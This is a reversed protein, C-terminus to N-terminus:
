CCVLLKLISKGYKEKNEYMPGCEYLYSHCPMIIHVLKFQFSQLNPFKTICFSVSYIDHLDEVYNELEHKCKKACKTLEQRIRQIVLKCFYTCQKNEAKIKDDIENCIRDLKIPEGMIIQKGNNPIVSIIDYCEVLNINVNYTDIFNSFTYM